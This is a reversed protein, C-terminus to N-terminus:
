TVKRLIREMISEADEPPEGDAASKRRSGQFFYMDKIDVLDKALWLNFQRHTADVDVLSPAACLAEAIQLSMLRLTVLHGLEANSQSLLQTMQGSLIRIASKRDQSM